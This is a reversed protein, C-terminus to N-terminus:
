AKRENDGKSDHRGLDIVKRALLYEAEFPSDEFINIMSDMKYLVRRMLVLQGPISDNHSKREVTLNRPDSERESFDEILAHLKKLDKKAVLFDELGPGAAEM